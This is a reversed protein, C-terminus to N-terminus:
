RLKMVMTSSMMRETAEPFEIGVNYPKENDLKNVSTVIKETIEGTEIHKLYIIRDGIGQDQAEADQM